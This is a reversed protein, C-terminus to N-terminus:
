HGRSICWADQQCRAALGVFFLAKLSLTWCGVRERGSCPSRSATLLMRASRSWSFGMTRRLLVHAFVRVAIVCIWTGVVLTGKMFTIGTQASYVEYHEVPCITAGMQTGLTHVSFRYETGATSLSLKQAATFSM